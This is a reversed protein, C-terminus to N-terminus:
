GPTSAAVIPDAIRISGRGMIVGTVTQVIVTVISGNFYAPAIPITAAFRGAADATLPKRNLLVIPLEPAFTAYLVAQLRQSGAATGSVRVAAAGAVASVDVPSSTAEPVAAMTGILILTVVAIFSGPYANSFRM